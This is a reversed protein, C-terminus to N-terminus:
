SLKIKGMFDAVAEGKIADAIKSYRETLELTSHDLLRAIALLPVGAIALNSAFTHRLSHTVIRNKIDNKDIHRPDNFLRDLYPQLKKPLTRANRPRNGGGIIYRYPNDLADIASILLPRALDSIYGKYTRGVKKNQLTLLGSNLDCDVGRIGLITAVRAGTSIALVVFLMLESDGDSDIAALLEACESPTLYGQRENDLKIKKYDSVPNKYKAHKYVGAVLELVRNFTADALGASRMQNRIADIDSDGLADAPKNRLKALKKARSKYNKYEASGEHAALYDDLLDGFLRRSRLTPPLEGRRAMLVRELRIREAYAERIGESYAGIKEFISRGNIKYRIDFIIEGNSLVRKFVGRTKTAVRKGAKESL